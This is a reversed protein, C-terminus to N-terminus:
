EDQALHQSQEGSRHDIEVQITEAVAHPLPTAAASRALLAPGICPPQALGSQLGSTLRPTALGAAFRYRRGSTCTPMFSSSTSSLSRTVRKTTLPSCSAPWVTSLASLTRSP